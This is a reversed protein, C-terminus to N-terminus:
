GKEGGKGYDKRRRERKTITGYIIRDVGKKEWTKRRWEGLKGKPITRLLHRVNGCKHKLHWVM